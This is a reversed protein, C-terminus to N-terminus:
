GTYDARIRYLGGAHYLQKRGDNELFKYGTTHQCRFATWPSAFTLEADHLRSRVLDALVNAEDQDESVAKVQYTVDVAARPIFNTDGGGQYSYILYPTATELPAQTDYIATGGLATTLATGAALYDFLGDEISNFM